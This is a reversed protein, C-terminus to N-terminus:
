YTMLDLANKLNLIEKNLIVVEYDNKLYNSLRECAEIQALLIERKNIYINFPQEVFSYIINKKNNIGSIKAEIKLITGIETINM